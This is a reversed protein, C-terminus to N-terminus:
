IYLDHQQNSLKVVNYVVTDNDYGNLIFMGDGTDVVEELSLKSSLM